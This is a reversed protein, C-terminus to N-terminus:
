NCAADTPRADAADAPGMTEEACMTWNARSEREREREREGHLISYAKRNATARGPRRCHPWRTTQMFWACDVVPGDDMISRGSAGHHCREGNTPWDFLRFRLVPTNGVEVKPSEDRASSPADSADGVDIRQSQHDFLLRRRRRRRRWGFRGGGWGGEGGWRLRWLVLPVRDLFCSLISFFVFISGKVTGPIRIVPLVCYFGSFCGPFGLLVGFVWSWESVFGLFEWYCSILGLLGWYFGTFGLLVWYFGTFGLSVWYFKIPYLLILEFWNFSLLVGHFGTYAM